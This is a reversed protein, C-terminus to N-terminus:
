PGGGPAPTGRAHKRATKTGEPQALVPFLARLVESRLQETERQASDIVDMDQFPVRQKLDELQRSGERLAIDLEKFGDVQKSAARGTAELRNWSGKMLTLFSGLMEKCAPHDDKECAEIAHSLKQRGLRIEFKAKKVPNNEKEIRASLDADSQWGALALHPVALLAAAVAIILDVSGRERRM